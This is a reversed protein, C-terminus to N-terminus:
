LQGLYAELAARDDTSLQSTKGMTGDCGSILDSLTAYRGDHFYPASRAVLHLSPTDFTRRGDTKPSSAVDHTDGDTLESGAHCSACGTEESRFIAGGRAVVAEDESTRRSAVPPHLTALYAQIDAVERKGLGSGGLRQTTHTLHQAFTKAAGDWGYPATGELREMLIPTQRRGGPSSWALGDDRGDPHCSACARGDSSVRSDSVAHFLVRGRLADQSPAATTRPLAAKAIVKAEPQVTLLSVVRDFASWVVARQTQPELAIAVPGGPVRVSRHLNWGGQGRQLVAIENSGVCAVMVRHRAGDNAAGRPLLCTSGLIREGTAPTTGDADFTAVSPTAAAGVDSGYGSSRSDAGTDVAVDPALVKGDDTRAVAFAQDARLVVTEFAASRRRHAPMKERDFAQATQKPAPPGDGFPDFQTAQPQPIMMELEGGEDMVERQLRRDLSLVRATMADLDVVSAESGVAHVVLARRGDSSAVAAGPDRPLDVVRPASQGAPDVLTLAHGWRSTVLLAGSGPIAAASIPEEPVAITRVPVLPRDVDTMGLVHVKSDDAGLAVIRGDATVIVAAPRAGIPTTAVAEQLDLDFTVVADDDADAIFAFTRLGLRALAVSGASSEGTPDTRELSVFRIPPPAAEVAAPPPDAPGSAAAGPSLRSPHNGTTCDLLTLILTLVVFRAM